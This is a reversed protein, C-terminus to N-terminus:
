RLSLARRRQQLDNLAVSKSVLRFRTYAIRYWTLSYWLSWIQMKHRVTDSYKTVNESKVPAGVKLASSIWSQLIQRWSVLTFWCYSRCLSLRVSLQGKLLLAVTQRCASIIVCVSSVPLVHLLVCPFVFFACCLLAPSERYLFSYFVVSLVINCVSMMIRQCSLFSFARLSRIKQEFQKWLRLPYFHNSSWWWWIMVHYKQLPRLLLAM